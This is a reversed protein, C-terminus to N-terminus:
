LRQRFTVLKRWRSTPCQNFTSLVVLSCVGRAFARYLTKLKGIMVKGGGTKDLESFCIDRVEPQQACTRAKRSSVHTVGMEATSIIEKIHEFHNAAVTHSAQFSLADAALSLASYASSATAGQAGAARNTTYTTTEHWRRTRCSLLLFNQDCTNQSRRSLTRSLQM